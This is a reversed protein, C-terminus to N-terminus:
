LRLRGTQGANRSPRDAGIILRSPHRDLFCILKSVIFDFSKGSFEIMM